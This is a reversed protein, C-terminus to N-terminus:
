IEAQEETVQKERKFYSKIDGVTLARSGFLLALYAFGGTGVLAGLAVFRMIGGAVIYPEAYDAGYYVILAMVLSAVLVRPFVRRLRKDFTLQKRLSLVWWLFAIQVWGAIGTALAIGPAGMDFLFVFTLALIINCAVSICSVIVPAKTDARAFCATSFVKGAIYAPLGISYGALVSATIRADDLSFEGQNFLAAILPFAALGLALAAPIALVCCAELARSFLYETQAKDKAAVARSLMPLLATGVAIGVTGLPLQNMRDAYYLHSVAGTSLFSAIMVDAFLNVQVVGAGLLGPLMLKFLRKIEPTLVPRTPYLRIGARRACWLVWVLQVVGAITVGWSLAHGPTAFLVGSAVLCVVMSGNFFIPAAAFPAFRNHANLVGGVLATLSMLLLYPFTIRSFEVASDYRLTGADFGPAIFIMLWPMALMALLTFPLLIAIMVGCATRAFSNADEVSREQTLRSYLPIFSVSFAGEATIRRFFNPIKLAVFFADALPGAGLIAATLVDRAFGAFRSVITLGGVTVMAKILAMGTGGAYKESGRNFAM